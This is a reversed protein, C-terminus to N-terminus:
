ASVQEGKEIGTMSPMSTQLAATRRDKGQSLPEIGTEASRQEHAQGNGYSEQESAFIIRNRVMESEKNSNYWEDWLDKPVGQTIAYGGIVPAKAVGGWPHAPGHVRFQRTMQWQDYDRFGHATMETRKVMKGVRLIIGPNWRCYVSVVATGTAPIPEPIEQPLDDLSSSRGSSRGSKVTNNM